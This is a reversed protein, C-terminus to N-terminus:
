IYSLGYKFLYDLVASCFIEKLFSYALWNLLQSSMDTLSAIRLWFCNEFNLFGYQPLLVWIHSENKKSVIIMKLM